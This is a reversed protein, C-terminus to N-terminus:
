IAHPAVTNLVSLHKSTEVIITGIFKLSLQAEFAITEKGFLKFITKVEPFQM